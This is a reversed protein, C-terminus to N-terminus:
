RSSSTASAASETGRPPASSASLADRVLARASSLMLETAEERSLGAVDVLWVLSEIGVASRVAIALRRVGAKSLRPVAPALADEFWGIARGKRLPLEGPSGSELSMRLMTRQQPEADLTQELLARAAALLRVEPDDGIDPPLLSARDVIPHAAVLLGQQSRFYRYATTRSVSAARAAEEVTPAAGGQSILERAAAVLDNRTREKQRTRGSAEYATSM